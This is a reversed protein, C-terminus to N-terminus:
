FSLILPGELFVEHSNTDKKKSCKVACNKFAINNKMEVKKKKELM